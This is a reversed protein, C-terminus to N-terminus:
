SSVGPSGAECLVPYKIGHGTVFCVVEAAPDIAGREILGPLAAVTAGAEPSAHIGEEAALRRAGELLDADEVAVAAGGSERIAALMLFDGIASPVKLGSAVTCPRPVPEARESGADFAHVIPACGAAQVSIM